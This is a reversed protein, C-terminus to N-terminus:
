WAGHILAMRAVVGPWRTSPEANEHPSMTAYVTPMASTAGSSRHSSTRLTQRTALVDPGAM